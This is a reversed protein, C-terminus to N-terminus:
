CMQSIKYDNYLAQTRGFVRWKPGTLLAQETNIERAAGNWEMSVHVIRRLHTGSNLVGPEELRWARNTLAQTLSPAELHQSKGRQAIGHTCTEKPLVYRERPLVVRTM